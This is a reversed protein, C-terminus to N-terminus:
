PTVGDLSGKSEQSPLEQLKFRLPHWLHTVKDLTAKTTQTFDILEIIAELTSFNYSKHLQKQLTRPHRFILNVNHKLNYSALLNYLNCM